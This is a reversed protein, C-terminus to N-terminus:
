PRARLANVESTVFDGRQRAFARLDNVSREFEDNSFTKEPDALAADRVQQYEREIERELWGRGDASGEVDYASRVVELVSDLFFDYLDRDAIARTMLRNQRASPTNNVNRLISATPGAKFAESKDWAIFTFLKRDVFRYFYFNNIGYDGLFGDQDALFQEVAVYRLFNKLDLYDAIATRFAATSTSQNIAQVLQVIFEPRPDTEHTEPKFPLPVYSSPNSGRDEFYYPNADAPYDYKYLWGEDENFTRKLFSKDVSEVISFLGAYQDNIYLKTHAERSAQRGLRRFLLMSLREHLNSADQTNNRLVFSKLGVFKQDTVYRDFDVRLGPKVGSRSGTGRSRIGINRLVTDRWRFDCPYYTNDLYNDKLAQWDRANIALRIEHLVTDDFFADAGSLGPQQTPPIGLLQRHTQGHVAVVTCAALLIATFLLRKMIQEPHTTRIRHHGRVLEHRHVHRHHHVFNGAREGIRERHM